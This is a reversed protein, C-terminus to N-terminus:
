NSEKRINFIIEFIVKIQPNYTKEHLDDNIASYDSPNITAPKDFMPNPGRNTWNSLKTIFRNKLRKSEEEQPKAIEDFIRLVEDLYPERGPVRRYAELLVKSVEDKDFVRFGDIQKVDTSLMVDLVSLILNLKQENPECQGPVLKLFQEYRKMEPFVQSREQFKTSYYNFVKTKVQHINLTPEYKSIMKVLVEIRKPTPFREAENINLFSVSQDILFSMNVTKLEPKPNLLDAFQVNKVKAINWDKENSLKSYLEYLHSTKVDYGFEKLFSQSKLVLSKNDPAM